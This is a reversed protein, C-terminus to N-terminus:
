LNQRPPLNLKNRWRLDCGMNESAEGFPIAGFMQNDLPLIRKKKKKTMNKM